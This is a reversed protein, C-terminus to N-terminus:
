FNTSYFVFNTKEDYRKKTILNFSDKTEQSYKLQRGSKGKKINPTENLKQFAKKVDEKENEYVYKAFIPPEIPSHLFLNKM